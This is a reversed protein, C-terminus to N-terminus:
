CFLLLQKVQSVNRLCPRQCAAHSKRHEFTWTDYRISDAGTLNCLEHRLSPSRALIQCLNGGWILKGPINKPQQSLCCIWCPLIAWHHSCSSQSSKTRGEWMNLKSVPDPSIVRHVHVKDPQGHHAMIFIQTSNQLFNLEKQDIYCIKRNKKKLIYSFSLVKKFHSHYQSCGFFHIPCPDQEWHNFDLPVPVEGPPGTTLVTNGICSAQTRDWTLSSCGVHRLSSRM